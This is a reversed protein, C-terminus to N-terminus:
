GRSTGAHDARLREPWEPPRFGALMWRLVQCAVPNPPRATKTEPDAEWRRITRPDTGLIQGLEAASLGLSHRAAAFQQPTM